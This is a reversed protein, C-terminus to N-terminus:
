RLSSPNGKVLAYPSSNTNMPMGPDIAIDVFEGSNQDHRKKRPYKKNRKSVYHAQNSATKVM